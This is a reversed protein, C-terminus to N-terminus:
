SKLGPSTAALSVTAVNETVLGISVVGVACSQHILSCQKSPDNDNIVDKIAPCLKLLKVADSEVVEVVFRQPLSSLGHIFLFSMPFGDVSNCTDQRFVKYGIERYYSAM